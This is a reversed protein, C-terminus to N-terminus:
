YHAKLRLSRSPLPRGDNRASRERLARPPSSDGDDRRIRDNRASRARLARPPSSDRDDRFLATGRGPHDRNRAKARQRESRESHCCAELLANLIDLTSWGSHGRALAALSQERCQARKTGVERCVVVVDLPPTAAPTGEGGGFMIPFALTRGSRAVVVTDGLRSDFREADMHHNNARFWDPGVRAYITKVSDIYARRLSDYPANPYLRVDRRTTPDWTWLEAWHTPAFHVNNRHYLITEGPLVRLTWGPLTTVLARERTLVVITGASPNIHTDAVLFRKTGLIRVVSEAAIGEAALAQRFATSTDAEVVQSRAPSPASTMALIAVLVKSAALPKLM